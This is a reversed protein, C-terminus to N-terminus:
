ENAAEPQDHETEGTCLQKSFERQVGRDAQPGSAAYNRGIAEPCYFDQLNLSIHGVKFPSTQQALDMAKQWVKLERYSQAM